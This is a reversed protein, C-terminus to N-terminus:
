QWLYGSYDDIIVLVFRKGGLSWVRYSGNIDMHLLERPQKTMVLNILLISAAIMKVHWCSFCALDKEFMLKLLGRILGLGSLRCLLDFSM